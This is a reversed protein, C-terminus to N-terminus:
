HNCLETQTPGPRFGWLGTKESRPEYPISLKKADLNMYHYYNAGKSISPKRSSINFYTCFVVFLQIQLCQLGLHSPEDHTTKDQDSTNAELRQIKLM